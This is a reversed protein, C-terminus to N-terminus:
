RKFDSKRRRPGALKPSIAMAFLITYCGLPFRALFKATWHKSHVFPLLLIGRMRLRSSSGYWRKNDDHSHVCPHGLYQLWYGRGLTLLYGQVHVSVAILPIAVRTVTQIATALM